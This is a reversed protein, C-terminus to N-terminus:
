VNYFVSETRCVLARYGVQRRKFMNLLQKNEEDVYDYVRILVRVWLVGRLFCFRLVRGRMLRWWYREEKRLGRNIVVEM